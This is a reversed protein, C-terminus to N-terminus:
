LVESRAENFRDVVVEWCELATHDNDETVVVIKNDSDRRIMRVMNVNIAMTCNFKTTIFFCGLPRTMKRDPEAM